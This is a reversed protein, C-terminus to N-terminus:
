DEQIVVKFKGELAKIRAEFPPLGIERRFEEVRARDELASIVIERNPNMEQVTGYRQREGRYVRLRDFMRAYTEPDLRGSLVDDKVLPLLTTWVSPDKSAGVLFFANRSAEEGFTRVDIWGVDKILGVVYAEQEGQLKPLDPLRVTGTPGDIAVRNFEELVRRVEKARRDLENRVRDLAEEASPGDPYIRALREPKGLSLPPIELQPPRQPLKRFRVPGGLDPATLVLDEGIFEYAFSSTGGAGRTTVKGPAYEARGFGLRDRGQVEVCLAVKAPMFEIFKVYPRKGDSPAEVCAWAGLLGKDEKVAAPVAPAIRADERSGQLTAWLAISVLLLAATMPLWGKLFRQREARARMRSALGEAEADEALAQRLLRDVMLDRGVRRSGKALDELERAEDGALTGLHLKALLERCRGEPNM